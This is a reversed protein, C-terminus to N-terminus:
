RIAWCLAGPDIPLRALGSPAKAIIQADYVIGMTERGEHIFVCPDGRQGFSPSIREPKVGISTLAKELLPALGGAADIIAQAGAEDKYAGRWTKAPDKQTLAWVCDAPFLCCDFRGWEFPARAHLTIRSGLRREWQEFRM